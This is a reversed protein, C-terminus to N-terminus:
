TAADKSKSPVSVTNATFHRPDLPAPITRAKVAEIFCRSTTIPTLSARGTSRVSELLHELSRELTTREMDCHHYFALNTVAGHWLQVAPDQLSSGNLPSLPGWLLQQLETSTLRSELYQEVARELSALDPAPNMTMIIALLRCSTKM